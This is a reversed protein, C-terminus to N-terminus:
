TNTENLFEGSASDVCEIRSRIINSLQTSLLLTSLTNLIVNGTSESGTNRARVRRRHNRIPGLRRRQFRAVLVGFDEHVTYM